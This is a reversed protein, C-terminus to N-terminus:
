NRDTCAEVYSLTLLLQAPVYFIWTMFSVADSVWGSTLVRIMVSADCCLFLTIGLKFLLSINQRKAAWADIVNVTILVMNLLGLASEANLLGAKHLAFLGPAFLVARALISVPGARLYAAYLIEVTCFATLGYEYTLGGYDADVYTLFWDAILTVFLAYAILNDHRDRLTRGCRAYFYAAVATNVVIAPYGLVGLRVWHMIMNTQIAILLLAEIAIYIKILTKEADTNGLNKM